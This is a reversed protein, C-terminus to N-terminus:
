RDDSGLGEDQSSGDAAAVARDVKKVVDAPEAVGRFRFEYDDQAATDFDVTGVQLVREVISQTFNVNQVRSLRTEQVERSVIGRKIHLRADTITYTTSVRKIFGILITLGVGILGIVVAVGTAGDGFLETAGWIAVAALLSVATGKVYFALISRWSPHGEYLKQEGPRLDM